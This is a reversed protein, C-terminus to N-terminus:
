SALVNLTELGEECVPWHREAASPQDPEWTCCWLPPQLISAALRVTAAPQNAEWFFAVSNRSIRVAPNEQTRSSSSATRDGNRWSGSNTVETCRQMTAGSRPRRPVHTKMVPHISSIDHLRASKERWPRLEFMSSIRPCEQNSSAANQEQTSGWRRLALFGNPQSVM